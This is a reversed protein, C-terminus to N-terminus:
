SDVGRQRFMVTRGYLDVGVQEQPGERGTNSEGRINRGTAQIRM